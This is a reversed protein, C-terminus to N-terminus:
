RPTGEQEARRKDQREWGPSEDGTIKKMVGDFAVGSCHNLRVVARWMARATIAFCKETTETDLGLAELDDITDTILDIAESWDARYEAAAQAERELARARMQEAREAEQEPTPQRKRGM